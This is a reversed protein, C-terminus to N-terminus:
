KSLRNIRRGKFVALAIGYGANTLATRVEAAAEASAAQVWVARCSYPDGPKRVVVTWWPLAM